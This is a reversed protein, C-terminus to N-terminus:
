KVMEKEVRGLQSWECQFSFASQSYGLCQMRCQCGRGAVEVGLAARYMM